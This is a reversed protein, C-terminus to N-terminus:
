LVIKEESSLSLAMIADHLWQVSSHGPHNEVTGDNHFVLAAGGLTRIGTHDDLNELM